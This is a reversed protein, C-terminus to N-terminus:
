EGRVGRPQQGSRHAAELWERKASLLKDVLLRSHPRNNCDWDLARMELDAHDKHYQLEMRVFMLLRKMVGAATENAFDLKRAM